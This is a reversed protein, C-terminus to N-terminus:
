GQSAEGEGISMLDNCAFFFAKIEEAEKWEEILPGSGANILIERGQSEGETRQEEAESHGGFRGSIEGVLVGV